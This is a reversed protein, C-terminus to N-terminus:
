FTEVYINLPISANHNEIGSIFSVRIHPETVYRAAMYQECPRGRWNAIAM